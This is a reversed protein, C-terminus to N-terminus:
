GQAMLRNVEEFAARKLSIPQRLPAVNHKSSVKYFQGALENAYMPMALYFGQVEDCNHSTLFHLQESNEIGEAVVKLNLSHAMSIIAEVIAADDSCHYLNKIFSRDIKIRDVPLRKLYSLSSYGTGFDDISLLFGMEKLAKLTDITKDANGMVISETFELDLLQPSVGTEAIVAKIMELFGPQTLQKVSVNVAMRLDVTGALLWKKAQLCASRLVWEGVESILGIDEALAIFEAPQVQGFEDSEWRLLAEVGTMRKSAVGWQPQYLLYLEEKAVAQRLGNELAVRYLVQENLETSFFRYRSKGESKAYYMATDACKVLTEVDQADRPFTAVGISASCHVQRSDLAFPRSFSSLMREAVVAISEQSSIPALIVVFEDGGLRALVEYERKNASLRETVEQLLKDGLHHGMTDNVDKFNDLDLFLLGLEGGERCTMALAQQLRDLFMRRNPLGTLTDYYALHHIKAEAEKRATIDECATVMGLFEGESDKVPISTLQVAFEEGNKRVNISDRRWAGSTVLDAAPIDQALSESAFQRAERGILEEIAYGHIEAEAPNSYAIAGHIDSITIGIPLCDVAANLMRLREEAQKMETIDQLTGVVRPKEGSFMVHPQGHLRVIRILSGSKQLRCELKCAARNISVNQLASHVKERDAPIISALFNEYSFNTASRAVGLVRFLEASGKFKGTSPNWDWSGLQAIRQSNALLAESEALSAMSWGARLMYSVRYILLEPNISKHVFDTAGAEFARHVLGTESLSTLMIVPVHRGEPLSRIERCTCCGDRAPLDMDLLVMDPQTTSFIRIAAAGDSATITEFGAGALSSQLSSRVLHNDDVILVVAKRDSFAKRYM